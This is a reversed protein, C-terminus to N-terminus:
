RYAEWKPDHDFSWNYYEQLALNQAAEADLVVLAKKHLQLASAPVMSSIPGEIAQVAIDAKAKGTILMLTLRADLITGIGMTFARMPMSEPPDFYMSNQRWTAPTLAKSRTRSAFSSTPENFGIHGDKGIGLLQLDIGGAANIAAEYREGEADENKALGDPLNTRKKDINVHDFLHHNMYYRYSNKDEPALGIYEDLNFSTVRSFDVEKAQYMKVLDAYVAEMTGGTALGLTCAPKDNILEAIIRATFHVADATNPRIVVEM